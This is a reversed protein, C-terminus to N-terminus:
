WYEQCYDHIQFDVSPNGCAECHSAIPKVPQKLENIAAKLVTAEDDTFENINDSIVSEIFPILDDSM